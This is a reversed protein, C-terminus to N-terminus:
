DKVIAATSLLKLCTMVQSHPMTMQDSEIWEYVLRLNVEPITMMVPKESTEKVPKNSSKKTPTKTTM